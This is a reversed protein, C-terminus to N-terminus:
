TQTETQPQAEHHEAWWRIWSDEVRTFEDDDLGFTSVIATSSEVHGPQDGSKDALVVLGPGYAEVTLGVQDATDFWVRGELTPAGDGAVAYDSGATLGAVGLLDRVAPAPGSSLFVTRRAAASDQEVAFRLQALFAVWGQTIDDYMADWDADTGTPGRTIRVVTAGEEERLDFRDGLEFSGPAPGGRTELVYPTPAERAHEQYIFDIEGELGDFDWGHWRAILEPDRLHEWVTAIPASVTVEIVV